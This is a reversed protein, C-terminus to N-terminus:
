ATAAPPSSPFGGPWRGQQRRSPRSPALAMALERYERLYPPLIKSEVEALSPPQVTIFQMVRPDGYLAAMPGGDAATFRRLLMRETEVVIRM